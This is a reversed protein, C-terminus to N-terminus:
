AAVQELSALLEDVRRRIMDRAQRLAAVRGTLGSALLPDRVSWRENRVGTIPAAPMEHDEAVIIVIDWHEGAVEAIDRPLEPQVHTRSEALVIRGLRGMRDPETSAVAVDFRGGTLSEFISQAM